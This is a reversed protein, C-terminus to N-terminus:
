LNSIIQVFENAKETLKKLYDETVEQKSDVLASGIGCAVAGAQLYERINQLNIGGTPMLPIDPFPGRLDRIYNAGGSAPFIKIIDGGHDYAALIETATYAGPISVAGHKKTAQITKINLTPSIIFKAGASIADKATTADLVTGMGILLENGMQNSLGSLVTLANPSNFTIELVMVGGACLARAIKLVDGPNAGRIIAVIKHELIKSLTTM